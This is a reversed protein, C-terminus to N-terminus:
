PAYLMTSIHDTLIRNIEEPMEKNFSRLGAEVHAIPKKLKGGVLAAALTSDTDGYVILLDPNEKVVIEELRVMIRATNETNTGGGIGLNHNPQKIRLEKYFIESMKEDYHQGTHVSIEKIEKRKNLENTIMANKIFQPRAGVVTMIKM